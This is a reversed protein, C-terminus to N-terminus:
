YLVSLLNKAMPILDSNPYARVFDNLSVIYMDKNTNSKKLSYIRLMALKDEIKSNPYSEITNEVQNIVSQFEFKEYMSFINQYKQQVEAERSESLKENGGKLMRAFNSFPYKDKLIQAYKNTKPESNKIALTYLVEPENAANPHQDLIRDFYQQVKKDDNLRLNYIKGLQFLAEEQKRKSAIKQSESFPIKKKANEIFEVIEEEEKSKQSLSSDAKIKTDEGKVIKLSFSGTGQESRRWNDQLPRTGWNRLFEAKGRALAVPDYLAWSSVAGPALGNNIKNSATSDLSSKKSQNIQDQAIKRLKDDLALPNMEALSQLSDELDLASKYRVFDSLFAKKTQIKESKLKDDASFSLCSDFYVVAKEFDGISEQYINAIAEYAEAKTKPNSSPHNASKSYLKIAESDNNKKAEIDGMKIFIAALLDQNKRDELMSQFAVTTNKALSQTGLLGLKALFMLDYHPKAKLCMNYHRRAQVMNAQNEYINGAIYHLRGTTNRNKKNLKLGEELLVIANSNDNQLRYYHALAIFFESKEKNNMVTNKLPEIMRGASVEDANLLYAKFLEVFAKGKYSKRFSTGYLYKFTEIANLFEGKELRAKGLLFYAEDLHKSNSHREAILSSKKIADELYMKASDLRSSDIQRLIYLPPSYREQTNIIKVAYNYDERAILLANYRANTNHWIRSSFTNSFQSCSSLGAIIFVIYLINRIKPYL